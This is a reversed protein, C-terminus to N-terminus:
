KQIKQEHKKKRSSSVSTAVDPFAGGFGPIPHIPDLFRSGLWWLCAIRLPLWWSAHLLGDVPYGNVLWYFLYMSSWPHTPEVVLITKCIITHHTHNAYIYIITNRPLMQNAKQACISGFNPDRSARSTAQLPQQYTVWLSRDDWGDWRKRTFVRQRHKWESWFWVISM